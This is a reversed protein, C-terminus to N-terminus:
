RRGHGRGVCVPGSPGAQETDSHGTRDSGCWRQRASSIQWCHLASHCWKLRRRRTASRMCLSNATFIRRGRRKSACGPRSEPWLRAGSRHQSGSDTTASIRWPRCGASASRMTWQPHGPARRPTLTPVHRAATSPQAPGTWHPRIALASPTRQCQGTLNGVIKALWAPRPLGVM